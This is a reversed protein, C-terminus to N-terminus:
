EIQLTFWRWQGARIGSWFSKPGANKSSDDIACDSSRGGPRTSRASGTPWKDSLTGFFAIGALLLGNNGDTKTGTRLAM